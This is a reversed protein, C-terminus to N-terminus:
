AFCGAPWAVGCATEQISDGRNNRGPYALNGGAIHCLLVQIADGAVHIIAVLHPSSTGHSGCVGTDDRGDCVRVYAFRVDAEIAMHTPLIAIAYLDKRSSVKCPCGPLIKNVGM